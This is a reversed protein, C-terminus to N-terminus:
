GWHAAAVGAEELEVGGSQNTKEQREEEEVALDVRAHMCRSSKM